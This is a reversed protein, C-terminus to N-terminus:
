KKCVLRSHARLWEIVEDIPYVKKHGIIVANKIGTGQQDFKAMTKPHIIGGTLDWLQKRNVYESKCKEKLKNFVSM